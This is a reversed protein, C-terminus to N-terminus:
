VGGGGNWADDDEAELVAALAQLAPPDAFFLVAAREAILLSLCRALFVRWQTKCYLHSGSNKACVRRKLKIVFGTADSCEDAQSCIAVVSFANM